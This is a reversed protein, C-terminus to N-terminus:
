AIEARYSNLRLTHVLRSVANFVTSGIAEHGLISAKYYIGYRGKQETVVPYLITNNLLLAM